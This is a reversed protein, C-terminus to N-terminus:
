DREGGSEVSLNFNLYILSCFYRKSVRLTRQRVEWGLRLWEGEDEM